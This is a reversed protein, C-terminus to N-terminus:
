ILLMSRENRKTDPLCHTMFEEQRLLPSSETLSMWETQPLLAAPDGAPHGYVCRDWDIINVSRGDEAVIVQDATFIETCLVQQHSLWESLAKLRLICHSFREALEPYTVVLCAVHEQWLQQLAERCTQKEPLFYPENHIKALSKGTLTVLSLYEQGHLFYDLSKGAIWRTAILRDTENM